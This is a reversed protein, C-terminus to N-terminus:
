VVYGYVIELLHLEHGLEEAFLDLLVLLIALIPIPIDLSSM